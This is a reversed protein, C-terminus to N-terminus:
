SLSCGGEAAIHPDQMGAQKTRRVRAFLALIFGYVCPFRMSYNEFLM